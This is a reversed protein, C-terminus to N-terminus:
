VRAPNAGNGGRELNMLMRVLHAVSSAGMKEMVRSRHLEVTRQSLGMQQAMIKNPRGSVVLDLVERERPTLSVMRERILDLQTLTHRNNRDHDLANKVSEILESNKFPKQLYNFAGRRMAEVASPVDGHGTTFIVPIVAGRRNLEEQLELGSMGPMFIDLVLCGPQLPDYRELFEQASGFARCAVGMSQTLARLLSRSADDDEVVYVVPESETMAELALAMRSNAVETCMMFRRAVPHLEKCLWCQTVGLQPKGCKGSGARNEITGGWSGRSVIGFSPASATRQPQRDTSSHSSERAVSERACRDETARWLRQDPAPLFSFRM